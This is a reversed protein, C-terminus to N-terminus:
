FVIGTNLGINFYKSNVLEWDFYNTLSYEINPEFFLKLKKSLHFEYGIGFKSLLQFNNLDYFKSYGPLWESESLKNCEYLTTKEKLRIKYLGEFGFQLFLSNKEGTIKWRGEVPIGIYSTHYSNKLYSNHPDVGNPSIDCLFIPYYDILNFHYQSFSVGSILQFKNGLDLYMNGSLTYSFESHSSGLVENDLNLSTIKANFSAGFHFNKEQSYTIISFGMLVSLLILKKM